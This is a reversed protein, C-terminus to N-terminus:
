IHTFFMEVRFFGLYSILNFINQHRDCVRGGVDGYSGVLGIGYKQDWGSNEMLQVVKVDFM